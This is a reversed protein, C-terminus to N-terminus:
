DGLIPCDIDIVVIVIQTLFNPCPLQPLWCTAVGAWLNKRAAVWENSELGGGVLNQSGRMYGKIQWFSTQDRPQLRLCFIKPELHFWFACLDCILGHGLLIFLFYKRLFTIAQEHLMKMITWCETGSCFPWDQLNSIAGQQASAVIDYCRWHNPVTESM